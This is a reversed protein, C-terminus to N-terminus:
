REGRRALEEDVRRLNLKQLEIFEYKSMTGRNVISVRKDPAFKFALDFDKKNYESLPRQRRYDFTLLAWGFLAGLGVVTLFVTM